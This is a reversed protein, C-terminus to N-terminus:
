FKLTIDAYFSRPEGIFYRDGGFSSYDAREAYRVNSLNNIRLGLNLNKTLQQRVRFHLLEHGPYSNLNDIDTYYSGLSLWELEMRTTDLPQWSLQVSSMRRPATDVDNGKIALTNTAGFLNVDATYQHRSFSGAINIDWHDSLQWNLQYELGYHETQGDDLNLRSSSQFIVNTKKMFYSSLQYSLATTQGNIALEISNLEEADLSARTQGNQLRYMESAQPARFGHTLRIHGALSENWQHNLGLNFSNNEFNDSSDEPRSYRCGTAGTFGNICLSGDEATDGSRMRNDYDYRLWEYRAGLDLTSANSIRYQGNIFAAILEADVQYDYQKGAPFSSFGVRQSQKLYAKTYELDIGQDLRLRSHVNRSYLSQLGLSRQGNQELPTGPLFHMLFKMETYRVYPTVSFQGQDTLNKDIRSQLRIAKSDRFADPNPNERLRQSNKYASPGEVFGGTEQNLNTLSLLSVIQLQEGDYDHRASLKQQGFGTDQKYGGDHAANISLRYAHQGARDSLQYKLRKYDNSGAEFSLQQEKRQAPPMSIVNIVGHLADSGHISTGPGRLIEIRKAQETNIDFLQNVNCFGTARVPVSDEAVMYAGCSGSGTLVPSRIATLHEQGNGRSVWVGPTRTLAESIHLHSIQQLERTSVVSLSASTEQLSQENRTATVVVTELTAAHSLPTPLVIGSLALFLYLASCICPMCKM